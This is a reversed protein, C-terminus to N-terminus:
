EDQEYIIDSRRNEAWSSEDHGKIKPKSEGLSVIRVQKDGAGQATLMQKVSEARQAGLRKNMSDSGREDANGEIRVKAKPNQALHRAHAQLLPEFEPKIAAEKFDFYVSRENRLSAEDMKKASTAGAQAAGADVKAIKNSPEDNQQLEPPVPMGLLGPHLRLKGSQDVKASQVKPASSCAALALAATCLLLRAIATNSLM